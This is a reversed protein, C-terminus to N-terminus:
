DTAAAYEAYAREIAAGVREAKPWDGFGELRIEELAREVPAGSRAYPLVAERVAKLYERMRRMDARTSIRGHGPVVTDLEMGELRELAAIWGPLYASRAVPYVGTSLLDAVIALREGDLFIVTDGSTHAPGPHWLRIARDGVHMTFEETYTLSPPVIPV